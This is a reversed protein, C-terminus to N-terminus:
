TAPRLAYVAQLMAAAVLAIFGGIIVVLAPELGAVLTKLRQEADRVALEGASKTFEGLRGSREGIDILELAAALMLGEQRCAAAFGQGHMVRNRVERLRTLLARDTTVEEAADFAATIPLGALLSGGLVRAIRGSALLHRLPGVIPMGLLLRHWRTIAAESRLAVVAGLALLPVALILYPIVARLAAGLSLLLRTAGPLEQGLDSLVVAFRPIVTGVIISLSVLGGVTLLLPYALAQHLRARLEAESELHTAAEELAASLNGVREGAAIMAITHRPIKGDLQSLSASLSDGQTVRRQAAALIEKAENSVLGATATLARDISIGARVFTAVGRFANVLQKAALPRARLQPQPKVELVLMGAGQLANILAAGSDCHLHGRVIQGDSRVARYWYRTNM